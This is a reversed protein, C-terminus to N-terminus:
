VKKHQEELSGFDVYVEGDRQSSSASRRREGDDAANVDRADDTDDDPYIPESVQIDFDDDDEEEEEESM